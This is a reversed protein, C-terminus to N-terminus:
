RILQKSNKLIENILAQDRDYFSSFVGGSRRRAVAAAQLSALLGGLSGSIAKLESLAFSFLMKRDSQSMQNLPGISLALGYIYRILLQSRDILAVQTSAAIAILEPDDRCLSFVLAQNKAIASVVEAGDIGIGVADIALSLVSFRSQITRYDKKLKDLLSANAQENVSSLAQHNRASQQKENESKSESILQHLLEVNLQSFSFFYCLSFLLTLSCMKM